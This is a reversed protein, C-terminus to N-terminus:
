IAATRCRSRSTLTSGKSSGAKPHFSVVLEAQTCVFGARLPDADGFRAGFEWIPYPAKSMCELTIGEGPADIPM